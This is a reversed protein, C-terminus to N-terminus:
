VKLARQVTSLACGVAKATERLSMGKERCAQIRQHLEANVPRGVYKGPKDKNNAIGQAQRRRRDEYDKRAVVAL